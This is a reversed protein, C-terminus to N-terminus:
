YKIFDPYIPFERCMEDIRQKARDAVKEDDINKLVDYILEGIEEMQGEKMGRSTVAPTGIRVGSAIFPKQPDFPITNKNVTIAARELAEEAAKGTVDLPRLDVLLLHNDTGGSVIRLGKEVLKNALTQANKLVQAQYDKFEPQLAEKFAVAKAAIVHCLPGGQMGPMVTKDVKKGWEETTLIM